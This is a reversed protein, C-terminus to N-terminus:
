QVHLFVIMEVSPIKEELFIRLKVNNEVLVFSNQIFLNNIM